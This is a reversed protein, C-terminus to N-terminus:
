LELKYHIFCFLFILWVGLVLFGSINRYLNRWQCSSKLRLASAGPCGISSIMWHMLGYLYFHSRILRTVAEPASKSQGRSLLSVHLLSLMVHSVDFSAYRFVPNRGQKRHEPFTLEQDMKVCLKLLFTLFSVNPFDTLTELIIHYTM